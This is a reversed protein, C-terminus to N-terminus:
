MNQNEEAMKDKLHRNEEKQLGGNFLVTLATIRIIHLWPLFFVFFFVGNM